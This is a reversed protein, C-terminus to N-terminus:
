EANRALASHVRRERWFAYLGSGIVFAMGLWMIPDPVEEFVLFAIVLVFVMRTYRFPAVASVEGIRLAATITIFALTMAVAIMALWLWAQNPVHQWGGQRLMMTGGVLCLGIMAWISVFATSIRRPLRRTGLDRASLGLITLLMWLANPDFGEGGPRLIIMVGIFGGFVAAWRRPGVREGLFLAAGLTVALPQAQMLASAMTLPILSLAIVFGLSGLIEGATRTLVAPHFLDKSFLATGERRLLPLFLLASAFTSILIVQGVGLSQTALKFATDAVAFFAMAAIMLLIARSNAM